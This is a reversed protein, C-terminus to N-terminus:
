NNLDALRCGDDTFPSLGNEDELKYSDAIALRYCSRCPKGVVRHHSPQKCNPSDQSSTFILLIFDKPSLLDCCDDLGHSLLFYYCLLCSCGQLTLGLQSHVSPSRWFKMYGLGKISRATNAIHTHRKLTLYSFNLIHAHMAETYWILKKLHNM